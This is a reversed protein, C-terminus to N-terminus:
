FQNHAKYRYLQDYMFDVTSSSQNQAQLVRWGYHLTFCVVGVQILM